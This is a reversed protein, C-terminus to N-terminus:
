APFHGGNIHRKLRELGLRAGAALEPGLLGSEVGAEFEDWDLELFSGDPFVWVDLILDTLYYDNGQRQLPTVIDCYTGLVRGAADLYSVASYYELYFHRKAVAHIRQEPSLWGHQSFLGSLRLSKAESLVTFTQLMVGDDSVLGECFVREPKGLRSLHITIQSTPEPMYM